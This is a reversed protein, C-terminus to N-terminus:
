TGMLEISYRARVASQLRGIARLHERLLVRDAASLSRPVLANTMPEGASFASLQLELRFRQIAIFSERVDRADEDSLAGLARVGELRDLTNTTSIGNDLAILRIGDVIPGAARLKLDISGSSFSGFLGLPPRRSLAARALHAFFRRSGPMVRLLWQRLTDAMQVDGGVARFDFGILARMIAEPQPENVWTAFRSRWDSLRGRWAINTAMVDGKCRRAGCQELAAVMWEGLQAFYADAEPPCDDTFIIGNDQDTFLSQERRGESGMVLWCYASPPPGLEEQALDLLRRALLDNTEALIRGIGDAAVGSEILFRAARPLTARADALEGIERAREIRRALFLPQDAQVALVDGEQLVGIVRNTVPDCIVLHHIGHALMTQIAEFGLTDPSVAVVPASMINGVPQDADTAPAV